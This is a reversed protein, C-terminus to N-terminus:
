VLAQDSFYCQRPPQCAAPAFDPEATRLPPPIDVARGMPIPMPILRVGMQEAVIKLVEEDPYDEEALRRLNLFLEYQRAAITRRRTGPKEKEVREALALRLSEVDMRADVSEQARESRESAEPVFKAGADEGLEDRDNESGVAITMPLFHYDDCARDTARKTDGSIQCVRPNSKPRHLCTGCTKEEPMLRQKALARVTTSHIAKKVYVLWGAPNSSENWVVQRLREWLKKLDIEERADLHDFQEAIEEQVFGV